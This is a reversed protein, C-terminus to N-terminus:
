AFLSAGDRVQVSGRVRTGALDCAAGAPVEVDGRVTEPGIAGTCQRPAAQATAAGVLLGVVILAGVLTGPRGAM